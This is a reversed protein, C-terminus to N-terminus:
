ACYLVATNAMIRIVEFVSDIEVYEDIGHYNGGKPGIVVVETKGTRRFSFADCPLSLAKEEYPLGLQRFSERVAQMGPHRVDTKHPELWRLVTEFRPLGDKFDELEGLHQNMFDTFQSRVDQEKMGVLVPLYFYICGSKPIYSANELYNRGGAHVLFPMLELDMQGKYDPPYALKKYVQRDYERLFHIIHGLKYIPNTKQAYGGPGSEEVSAKWISGGATEIIAALASPEALIAFDVHPYRLRCAITGNVGGYEEDVVSEAYVNGKLSAGIEKLSRLAAFCCFTGAKMDAVGRGYMKGDKIGGSYPDPFASWTQEMVPVTDMHGSFVLSSGGGSGPLRAVFDPRDRYQRKIGDIHTFFLPHERIGPVDDIEFLDLDRESFHPAMFRHLYEQGAKEGGNPPVNDTRTRILGSLQKLLEERHAKIWRDISKLYDM